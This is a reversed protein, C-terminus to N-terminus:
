PLGTAISAARAPEYITEAAPRIPLLLQQLALGVEALPTPPVYIVDDPRLLVNKSMDGKEVMHKLNVVMVHSVNHRKEPASPGNTEKKQEQVQAVQPEKKGAAAAKAVEAAEEDSLYGGRTPSAGRVLRIREPWALNNPQSMALADVLTNAGNWAQPGPRAVQGFVYVKHSLFQEVNVTADLPEKYFRGAEKKIREQVENPTLGVVKIEGLLPLNVKGDPRVHARTGNIEPVRVSAFSLVDPPMIQYDEAALKCESQSLSCPATDLFAKLNEGGCGAALLGVAVCGLVWTPNHTMM